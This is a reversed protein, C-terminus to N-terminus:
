GSSSKHCGTSVAPCSCISIVCAVSTVFSSRAISQPRVAHGVSCFSHLPDVKVTPLRQLTAAMGSPALLATPCCLHSSPAGIGLGPVAQTELLPYHYPLSTRKQRTWFGTSFRLM